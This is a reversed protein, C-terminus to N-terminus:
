DPEEIIPSSNKYNYISKLIEYYGALSSSKRMWDLKMELKQMFIEFNFSKSYCFHFFMRNFNTSNLFRKDGIYRKEIFSAFNRRYFMIMNIEDLNDPFKFGGRRFRDLADGGAINFLASAVNFKIDNKTLFNFFKVYDISEKKCYYNLYDELVWSKQNANLLIIDETESAKNIQYYIEIGLDKAAQLRHQGDIIEMNENVLIPRLKLLNRSNISDKIKRLNSKNLDRNFESKIFISYDKTSKIM